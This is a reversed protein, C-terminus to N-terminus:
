PSIRLGAEIVTEAFAITDQVRAAATDYTPSTAATGNRIRLAEHVIRHRREGFATLAYRGAGGKSTLRDTALLHHLRSVGLVFWETVWEARDAPWAAVDEAGARLRELLPRWYDGLNAHSYARLAPRDTRVDAATLRPGRLVVAHEALEHWTVPDLGRHGAPQFDWEGVCPVGPCEGPPAALYARTVHLGDFFPKPHRRGVEGLVEGLVKASRETPRESVVALFDIDSRGPRFDGMALSGHLYLGEVLGPAADDALRLYTAVTRHVEEPLSPSPM